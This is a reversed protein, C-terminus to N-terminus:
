DHMFAVCKIELLLGPMALASTGIATWAQYNQTIYRDKIQIFLPLDRMDTFYTVLEIIDEMGAGAASLVKKLNEFAQVFQAETGSVVELKENRGVQGAVYIFNGARVAPSYHFREHINKMGEPVINKRTAM